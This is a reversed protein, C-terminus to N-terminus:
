KSVVFPKNTQSGVKLLYLGAKLNTLKLQFLDSEITGQEVVRGSYDMVVYAEGAIPEASVVSLVDSAPNPFLNINLSKKSANAIGTYTGDVKTRYIGKLTRVYVYGKWYTLSYSQMSEPLGDSYLSLSTGDSAGKYVLESRASGGNAAIAVLLDGGSLQCLASIGYGGYNFTSSPVKTVNWSEGNDSYAINTEDMIYLRNGTGQILNNTYPSITYNASWVQTITQGNNSVKWLGTSDSKSIKLSVYLNYDKDFGILSISGNTSWYPTFTEGGDSSVVISSFSEGLYIKDNVKDLLYNAKSHKRIWMGNAQNKKYFGSHAAFPAYICIYEEGKHREYDHSGYIGDITKSSDLIVGPEVSRYLYNVYTTASTPINRSFYLTDNIVQLIRTDWPQDYVIEWTQAWGFKIILTISLFLLTFRKKM